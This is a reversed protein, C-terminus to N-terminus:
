IAPYSIPWLLHQIWLDASLGLVQCFHHCKLIDAIPVPCILLSASRCPAWLVLRPLALWCLVPCGPLAFCQQSIYPSSQSWHGSWVRLAWHPKRLFTCCLATSNLETIKSHSYLPFLQPVIVLRLGQCPHYGGWRPNHLSAQSWQDLHAVNAEVAGSAPM